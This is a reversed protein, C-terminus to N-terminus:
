RVATTTLLPLGSPANPPTTWCRDTAPFCKKPPPIAILCLFGDKSFCDNCSGHDGGDCRIRSEQVMDGTARSDTRQALKRDTTQVVLRAPTTKSGARRRDGVRQRRPILPMLVPQLLGIAANVMGDNRPLRRSSATAPGAVQASNFQIAQCMGVLAASTSSLVFLTTMRETPIGANRASVKDGGMAFIWNGCRSFHIFFVYIATAALWWAFISQLQGGGIFDGFIAKAAGEVKLAVNTSKPILVTLGLVVSQVAFVSGLTVILSPVATRNVLYGNVLGVIVGFALTVAIAIWISLGFTSTIIAGTMGGFPVMAGFSIDLEGAIMLLGVPIAILGLYAAVKLWSFMGAIKLFTIGGFVVFFILMALLGLM